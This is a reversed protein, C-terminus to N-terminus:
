PCCYYKEVNTAGSGHEVCGQAPAVNGGGPAPPCQFRNPKGTVGDCMANRDPQAVCANNPCCYNNGFLAHVRTERCGTLGPPPGDFCVYGYPQGCAVDCSEGTGYGACTEGNGTKIPGECTGGEAGGADTPAEAAADTSSGSEARSADPLPDVNRRGGDIPPEAEPASSASCAAAGSVVLALTSVRLVLSRAM